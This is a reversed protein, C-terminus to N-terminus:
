QDQKSTGNETHPWKLYIIMLTQFGDFAGPMYNYAHLRGVTDNERESLNSSLDTDQENNRTTCM